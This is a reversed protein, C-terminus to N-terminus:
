VMGKGNEGGIMTNDRELKGPEEIADMWTEDTAEATTAVATSAKDRLKNLNTWEKDTFDLVSVFVQRKM